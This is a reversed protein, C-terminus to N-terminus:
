WHCFYLPDLQAFKASPSPVLYEPIATTAKLLHGYLCAINNCGEQTTFTSIPTTGTSCDMFGDIVLTYFDNGIQFTQSSQTNSWGFGDPCPGSFGTCPRPWTSSGYCPLYHPNRANCETCTDENPTEDIWLNYNLYVTPLAPDTFALAVQLTAGTAGTGSYIPYNQHTIQGIKFVNSVGNTITITTAGVGSFVSGSPGNSTAPTGWTISSTGVGGYVVGSGGTVATWIGSTSGLTYAAGTQILTLSLISLLVIFLLSKGFKLAVM